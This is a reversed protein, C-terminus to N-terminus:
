AGDFVRPMASSGDFFDAGFVSGNTDGGSITIIGDDIQIWEYGMYPIQDKM